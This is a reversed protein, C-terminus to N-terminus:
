EVAAGADAAAAGQSLERPLLIRRAALTLFLSTALILAGVAVHLTTPLVKKGSWVTEAGLMIQLTLAILLICAPVSLAREDSYRRLIRLVLWLILISVFLAGIRHAFNIFIQRTLYPPVVHGFALPFDPIALGSSTHRMLAGVLIQCYVCVTTVVTLSRLSPSGSDEAHPSWQRWRRSTVLAITVTLCLVIEALGAHGVSVSPPLLLLVTIGGLVGQCVVAFVALGGLLRVWKRPEGRWLWFAQIVILLGVTAAVMRHGHEYLIGGVMRPFLQGYSLPWDPVALGSGTSTVLGGVFILVLTSAAVFVAFRHVWLNSDM